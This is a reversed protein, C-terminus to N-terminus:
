RAKRKKELGAIVDKAKSAPINRIFGNPIKHVNKLWDHFNAKDAPTKAVGDLLSEIDAQTHADILDTEATAGDDDMDSSAIGLISFLTYRQLYSVASGIAQISNKGGSKDPESSLSTRESHGGIHSVVCDVTVMGNEQKTRWSHSLGNDALPQRIAAIATSLKAYKTNHGDANKVIIPCQERFRSMAEDFERKAQKAEHRDALDMFQRIQDADMGRELAAQVMVLPNPSEPEPQKIQAVQNM